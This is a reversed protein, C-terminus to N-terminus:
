SRSSLAALHRQEFETLTHHLGAALDEPRGAHDGPGIPHHCPSVPRGTGIAVPEDDAPRFCPHPAAYSSAHFCKTSTGDGAPRFCNTTTNGGAARIRDGGVNDSAHYCRGGNGRRDDGPHFCIRPHDPRDDAPPFHSTAPNSM